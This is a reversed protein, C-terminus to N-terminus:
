KRLLWGVRGEAEFSLMLHLRLVLASDRAFYLLFDLESWIRQLNLISICSDSCSGWDAYAVATLWEPMDRKRGFIDLFLERLLVLYTDFEFM